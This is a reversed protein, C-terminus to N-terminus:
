EGDAHGYLDNVEKFRDLDITLIAIKLTKDLQLLNKCSSLERTLGLRNPLQTLADITATAEVRVQADSDAGDELRVGIYGIIFLASTVSSIVIGFVTDSIVPDPIEILPSFELTFATMGTFHMSCISLVMFAAGGLWCYKTVPLIFRHFAAVGFISGLAVSVLVTIPNWAIDGPLRYAAMGIYHMVAVTLGFAIGGLAYNLPSPAYGLTTKAVFLGSVAILLSVATLMADFGHPYGPDYALMSIFHTSWITAGGILAALFTQIRRRMDHSFTIKRAVLATLFSGSLCILTAVALLGYHHEHTLCEIVRYVEAEM